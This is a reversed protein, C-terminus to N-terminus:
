EGACYSHLLAVSTGIGPALGVAGALAVGTTTTLQAGDGDGDGTILLAGAAGLEATTATGDAMTGTEDAMTGTGDAMLLATTDDGPGLTVGTEDAMAGTGEAM